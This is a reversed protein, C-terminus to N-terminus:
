ASSPMRSTSLDRPSPSTYLLCPNDNGDWEYWFAVYMSKGSLIQNYIDETINFQIGYAGSCDKGNCDNTDGRKTDMELKGGVVGNYDVADDYGYPGTNDEPDWDWGDDWTEDGPGFTNATSNLGSTFDVPNPEDAAIEWLHVYDSFLVGNMRFEESFNISTVNPTYNNLEWVTLRVDTFEWDDQNGETGFCDTENGGTITVINDGDELWEPKVPYTCVGWDTEGIRAQCPRGLYRDNLFICSMRGEDPDHNNVFISLRSKVVKSRNIDVTLNIDRSVPGLNGVNLVSSNADWVNRLGHLREAEMLLDVGAVIGCSICTYGCWQWENNYGYRDIRKQVTENSNTMDLYSCVPNSKEGYGVLGVRNNPYQLIYSVFLRDADVAVWCRRRNCPPSACPNEDCDREDSTVDCETEMSGSRDTLLVTDIEKGLGMIELPNTGFRLPITKESLEIYNLSTFNEDTLTIFQESTNGSEYVTVNGITLFVSYNSRYHIYASLNKLIGPVYFSSYLNILGDIGPFWYRDTANKGFTSTPSTLNSTNYVIKIYGGSIYQSDNSKFVITLNNEGLHFNDFYSSDVTWNDSSMNTKTKNYIGSPIGNIYLTFNSGVEMEMYVEIINDYTPLEVIRTINGEGVFGGFYVYKTGRRNVRTLFVKAVYGSVPKGVEYGSIITSLRSVLIPNSISKSYIIDGGMIVDYGYNTGNFLASLIEETINGAVTYNGTAWFSGIVDMLTKNMDDQKISGEEILNRITEFETLDKVKVTEFINLIDKGAYYLREYEIDPSKYTATLSISFITVLILITIAVMADLSLVFGKM